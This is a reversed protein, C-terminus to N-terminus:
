KVIATKKIIFSMKNLFPKDSGSLPACTAKKTVTRPPASPAVKGSPTAHTVLFIFFLVFVEQYYLFMFFIRFKNTTNTAQPSKNFPAEQTVSGKHSDFSPILIKPYKILNGKKFFTFNAFINKSKITKNKKPM